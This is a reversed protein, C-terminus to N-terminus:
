QAPAFLRFDYPGRHGASVLKYRTDLIGQLEKFERIRAFGTRFDPWGGNTILFASDGRQAAALVVSRAKVIENEDGEFLFFDYMV